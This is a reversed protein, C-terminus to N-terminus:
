RHILIKNTFSNERFYTRFIYVGPPLQSIDLQKPTENLSGSILKAGSISTIQFTGALLSEDFEIFILDSAPNPYIRFEKQDADEILVSVKLITRTLVNSCPGNRVWLTVPFDGDSNYNKVPNTFTSITGDGFDWYNSLSNQSLNTFTVQRLNIMETFDALPLDTTKISLAIDKQIQNSTGGDSVQLTITKQGSSSYSVFHPGKGNATAPTAGDGFNWDYSTVSGRSFDIFVFVEDECIYSTNIEFDAELAENQYPNFGDLTTQGTNGPDLWARLQENAASGSPDWVSSIRGYYDNISNGCEAEGGSLFGVTRSNQDLLPSGSSGGETTGEEWSAIRWHGQSAFGSLTVIAPSDFDKSIKKWDGKPHHISVTNLAPTTQRNWGLYFPRYDSPPTQNLELLTMDMSERTAILQSGTLSKSSTGSSNCYSAEYGFLFVTNTAASQTSLCHNATLIYPKGDQSTNNVLAGTCLLSGNIVLRMIANKELQHDNGEPCNIDINCKGSEGNMSAKDGFIGLYDHNVSAISLEGFDQITQPVILEIIVTEGPLPEFALGHESNNKHNFSGIIKSRDPTYIFVSVGEILRFQDFILNLSYADKSQIGLKWIKRGDPLMRWEGSNFPTFQVPFVHAFELSKLRISTEGASKAKSAMDIRPMREMKIEQVPFLHEEVPKGGYSLQGVLIESNFFVMAVAFYQLYQLIKM